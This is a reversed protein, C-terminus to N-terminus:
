MSMHMKSMRRYGVETKVDQEQATAPVAQQANGVLPFGMATPYQMYIPPKPIRSIYCQRFIICLSASLLFALAVTAALTLTTFSGFILDKGVTGKKVMFTDGECTCPLAQLSPAAQKYPTWDCVFQVDVWGYKRIGWTKLRSVDNVSMCLTRQVSYNPVTPDAGSFVQYSMFATASGPNLAM